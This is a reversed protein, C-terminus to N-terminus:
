LSLSRDSKYERVVDWVNGKCSLYPTYKTLQLFFYSRLIDLAYKIIVIWCILNLGQDAFMVSINHMM